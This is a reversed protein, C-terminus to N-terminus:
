YVPPKRTQIKALATRLLKANDARLCPNCDLRKNDGCGAKKVFSATLSLMRRDGVDPAKELLAQRAECTTAERLDLAMALAPSAKARVVKNLLLHEALKALEPQLKKDVSFEYLLDPGIPGPLTAFLGIVERSTDADKAFQVLRKTSDADPTGGLKEITSRLHTLAMHKLAARGQSIALAQEISLQTPEMKELTDLAHSEGQSALELETPPPKKVEASSSPPPAYRAVPESKKSSAVLSVALGVGLCVLGIVLTAWLPVGGSGAKTAGLPPMQSSFDPPPPPESTEPPFQSMLVEHLHANLWDWRCLVRLSLREAILDDSIM